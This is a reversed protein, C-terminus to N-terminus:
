RLVRGRMAKVRYVPVEANKGKLPVAKIFDAEVLEGARDITSVTAIVPADLERSLGQVRAATNVVDGIVTYQLHATDAGLVGVAVVGSCCGLGVDFPPDGREQWRANTAEILEHVELAARLAAAAHNPDIDKRQKQDGFVVMQADGLYDLCRGGHKEYVPVTVTHYERLLAVMKSPRMTENLTTFGRIDSFIITCDKETTYAGSGEALMLDAALEPTIFQRLLAYGRVFQYASVLGVVLLMTVTPGFPRLWWGHQLAVIAGAWYSTLLGGILLAAWRGPLRQLVVILGLPVAVLMLGYLELPTM